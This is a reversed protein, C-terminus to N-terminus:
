YQNPKSMKGRLKKGALNKVIYLRQDAQDITKVINIDESYASGWFSM